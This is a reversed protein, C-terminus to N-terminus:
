AFSAAVKRRRMTAGIAGFGTVMMIWSSLEPVASSQLVAVQSTQFSILDVESRTQFILSIFSNAQGTDFGIFSSEPRAAITFTGVEGNVNYSVTQPSRNYSGLTLGLVPGLFQYSLTGPSQLLYSVNSGYAGDNVGAINGGSDIITLGNGSYSAGYSTSYSSNYSFKNTTIDPRQADFLTQDTYVQVAAMAPSASLAM